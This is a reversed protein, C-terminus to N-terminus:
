WDSQGLVHQGAAWTTGDKLRRYVVLESKDESHTALCLIQYLDGKKFHRYVQGPSVARKAMRSGGGMVKGARSRIAM